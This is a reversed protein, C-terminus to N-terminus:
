VSAKIHLNRTAGCELQKNRSVKTQNCSMLIGSYLSLLTPQSKKKKKKFIYIIQQIIQYFCSGILLYQETPKKTKNQKNKLKAVSKPPNIVHTDPSPTFTNNRGGSAM